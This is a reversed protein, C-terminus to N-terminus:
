DKDYPFDDLISEFIFGYSEHARNFGLGDLVDILEDLTKSETIPKITEPLTDKNEMLYDYPLCELYSKAVARTLDKFTM